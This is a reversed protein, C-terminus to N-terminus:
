LMWMVKRTERFAGALNPNPGHVEVPHLKLNFARAAREYGKLAVVPGPGADWLVAVRSLKPLLEKLLELRKAGLDRVLGAFGTINGGPKTFSEVYGAAIPDISSIMVIPITRTTEKAARIAVSSGAVIVDIKQEVFEHVFPAMRNLNGEAYKREILINQGQLYGLDRV